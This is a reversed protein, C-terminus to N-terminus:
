EDMKLLPLEGLLSKGSLGIYTTRNNENCDIGRWESNCLDESIWYSKGNMETLHNAEQIFSSGFTDFFNYNEM